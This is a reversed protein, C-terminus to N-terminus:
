APKLKQSAWPSDQSPKIVATPILGGRGNLGLHHRKRSAVAWRHADGVQTRRGGTHTVKMRQAWFRKTVRRAQSGKGEMQRDQPQAKPSRLEPLWKVTGRM